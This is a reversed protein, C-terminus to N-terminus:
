FRLMQGETVARKARAVACAAAEAAHVCASAARPELGGCGNM